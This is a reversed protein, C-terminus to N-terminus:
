EWKWAGCEFNAYCRWENSLGRGHQPEFTTSQVGINAFLKMVLSGVREGTSSIFRLGSDDMVEDLPAASWSQSLFRVTLAIKTQCDM